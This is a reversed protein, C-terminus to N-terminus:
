PAGGAGLPVAGTVELLRRCADRSLNVANQLEGATPPPAASCAVAFAFLLRVMTKM